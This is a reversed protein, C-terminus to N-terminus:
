VIVYDKYKTYPKVDEWDYNRHFTTKKEAKGGNSNIFNVLNTQMLKWTATGPAFILGDPLMSYTTRDAGRTYIIMDGERDVSYAFMRNGSVPHSGGNEDGVNITSFLWFNKGYNSTVVAANEPGLLNISIVGGIPNNSEWVRKDEPKLPSFEAMTNTFNSLNLRFFEFLDYNSNINRPLKTVRVSFLDLNISNDDDVLDIRQVYFDRSRLNNIVSKSPYFNILPIWSEIDSKSVKKTNSTRELEFTETPNSYKFNADNGISDVINNLNDSTILSEEVGEQYTGPTYSKVFKSYDENTIEGNELMSKANKLSNLNGMKKSASSTARSNNDGTNKNKNNKKEVELQQRQRETEGAQQLRQGEVDGAVEALKQLLPGLQESGSM